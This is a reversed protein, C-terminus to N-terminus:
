YKLENVYQIFLRIHERQLEDTALTSWSQVEAIASDFDSVRISDNNGIKRALYDEEEQIVVAPRSRYLYYCTEVGNKDYFKIWIPGGRSKVTEIREDM